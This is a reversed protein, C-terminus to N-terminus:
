QQRAACQQFSAAASVSTAIHGDVFSGGAPRRDALQRDLKAHRALGYKAECMMPNACPMKAEAEEARVSTGPCATRSKHNAINCKYCRYVKGGRRTTSDFM